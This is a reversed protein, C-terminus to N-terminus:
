DYLEMLGLLWRMIFVESVILIMMWRRTNQETRIKFTKCRNYPHLALIAWLVSYCEKEMASYNRQEKSFTKSWYGLTAWQM